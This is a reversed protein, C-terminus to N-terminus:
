QNIDVLEQLRDTGWRKDYKVGKQDLIAQLSEKTPEDQSQPAEPQEPTPPTDQPQEPINPEVKIEEPQVKDIVRGREDIMKFRDTKYRGNDYLEINRGVVIVKNYKTDLVRDGTQFNSM